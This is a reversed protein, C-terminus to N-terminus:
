EKKAKKGKKEAPLPPTTDTPTAPEAPAEPAPEAVPAPAAEAPVSDQAAQTPAATDGANQVPAAAEAAEKALQEAQLKMMQEQQEFHHKAKSVSDTLSPDEALFKELKALVDAPAPIVDGFEKQLLATLRENATLKLQAEAAAIEEPTLDTQDPEVIHISGAKALTLLRHKNAEFQEPTAEMKQGRRLIRGLVTPSESFASSTRQAVTLRQGIKLGHHIVYNKTGM